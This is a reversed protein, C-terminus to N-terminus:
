DVDSGTLTATPPAPNYKSAFSDKSMTTLTGSYQKIIWDETVLAGLAGYDAQSDIQIADVVTPKKQFKAM